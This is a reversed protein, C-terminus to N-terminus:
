AAQSEDGLKEKGDEPRKLGSLLRAFTEGFDVRAREVDDARAIGLSAEGLAGLLMLALPEVPHREIYGEDMAADLAERLLGLAYKADMERWAEWGLVSPGDILLIRRVDQDLCADFLAQCGVELHKEPRPEKVAAAAAQQVLEAEVQEAVARFLDAKDSFHHYLAGRTMKARRVIGEVSVAAYGDRAFLRRATKVLAARTAESQREKLTRGEM